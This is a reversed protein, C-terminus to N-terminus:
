PLNGIKSITFGDRVDLEYVAEVTYIHACHEGMSVLGRVPSNDGDIVFRDVFTAGLPRHGAIILGGDYAALSVGDRLRIPQTTNIGDTM